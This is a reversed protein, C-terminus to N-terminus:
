FDRFRQPFTQPHGAGGVVMAGAKKDSWIFVGDKTIALFGFNTWGPVHATLESVFEVGGISFRNTSIEVQIHRSINTISGHEHLQRQASLLESRANVLWARDISKGHFYAFALFGLVLIVLIAATLKM